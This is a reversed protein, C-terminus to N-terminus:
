KTCNSATTSQMLRPAWTVVVIFIKSCWCSFWTSHVRCTSPLNYRISLLVSGVVNEWSKRHSAEKDFSLSCQVLSYWCIVAVWLSDKDFNLCTWIVWLQNFFGVKYTSAIERIQLMTKKFCVRVSHFESWTMLEVIFYWRTFNCIHFNWLLIFLYGYQQERLFYISASSRNVDMCIYCSVLVLLIFINEYM